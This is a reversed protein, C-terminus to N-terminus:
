LYKYNLSVQECVALHSDSCSSFSCTGKCTKCQLLLSYSPELDNSSFIYQSLEKCYISFLIDVNINAILSDDLTGLSSSYFEQKAIGVRALSVAQIGHCANVPKFVDYDGHLYLEESKCHNYCETWSMTPYVEYIFDVFLIVSYGKSSVQASLQKCKRSRRWLWQAM